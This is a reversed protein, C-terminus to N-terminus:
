ERGGQDASSIITALRLLKSSVKLDQETVVPLNILVHIRSEKRVLEIMGGQQAFGDSDSVTLIPKGRTSSIASAILERNANSIFLYDCKSVAPLESIVSFSISQSRAQPARLLEQLAREVPGEGFACFVFPQGNEGTESDPWEIFNFFHYLFAAKIESEKFNQAKAAPIGVM